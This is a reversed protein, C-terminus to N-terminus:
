FGIGALLEEPVGANKLRSILTEAAADIDFKAAWENADEVYNSPIEVASPNKQKASVSVTILAKSDALISVDISAGNETDSFKLELALDQSGIIGSISADMDLESLIMELIEESPIIRLAGSTGKKEDSVYDSLELTVYEVDQVTVVYEASKTKGNTGEGEIVIDESGVSTSVILESAFKKGSEVTVWHIPELKMGSSSVKFTMGVIENSSNLYTVLTIKFSPMGADAADEVEMIAGDIAELFSDYLTDDGALEEMDRFIDEIEEDEALTELLVLAMDILDDEDMTATLIRLRQKVDGVEVSETSKDVSGFGGTVVGIYRRMISELIEQSPCIELFSELMAVSDSVSSYPDYMMDSSGMTNMYLATDSFDPISIYQELTNFDIVQEAGVIETGNLLVDYDIKAMQDVVSADYAVSASELWSVDMGAATSILSLITDNVSVTVDGEVGANSLDVSSVSDAFAAGGDFADVVVQDYAKQLNKEPSLFMWSFTGAIQSWMFVCVLVVCAVAAAIGGIVFPMVNKKKSPQANGETNLNFQSYDSDDVQPASEQDSLPAPESYFQESPVEETYNEYSPPVQYDNNADYQVDNQAASRVRYTADNDYDPAIPQNQAPQAAVPQGCEPCFMANDDMPNGCKGCFM